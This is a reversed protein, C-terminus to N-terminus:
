RTQVLSAAVLSLGSKCRMVTGAESQDTCVGATRQNASEARREGRAAQIQDRSRIQTTWVSLLKDRWVTDVSDDCM